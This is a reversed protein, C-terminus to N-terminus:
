FPLEDFALIREEIKKLFIQKYEDSTKNFVNKKHLQVGLSTLTKEIKYFPILDNKKLATYHISNKWNDGYKYLLHALTCGDSDPLTLDIGIGGYFELLQDIKYLEDVYKGKHSVGSKRGERYYNETRYKEEGITYQFKKLIPNNGESDVCHLDVVGLAIFKTDFDFANKYIFDWMLNSNKSLDVGVKFLMTLAEKSSVRSILFEGKANSFDVKAGADLLLEVKIIDNENVAEWIVSEGDPNLSNIDGGESVYAGIIEKFSKRNEEIIKLNEVELTGGGICEM